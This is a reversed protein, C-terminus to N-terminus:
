NCLTAATCCRCYRQWQPMWRSFSQGASSIILRLPLPRAQKFYLQRPAVPLRQPFSLFISRLFALHGQSSLILPTSSPSLSPLYLPPLFPHISPHPVLAASPPTSLSFIFDGEEEEEWGEEGEEEGVRWARDTRLTRGVLWYIAATM